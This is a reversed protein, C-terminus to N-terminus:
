QNNQDEQYQQEIEENERIWSLYYGDDGYAVDGYCMSCTTQGDPIQSGCNVCYAM